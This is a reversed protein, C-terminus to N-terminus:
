LWVGVLDRVKRQIRFRTAYEMLRTINKRGDRVYAQIAKNVTEVDLKAAHRIVDCITRERDYVCVRVGNVESWTVGIRLCHPEIFHVKIPPYELKVKRRNIRKDVAIHWRDPTRDIYQYHYLASEMCLIADPLLRSIIEIDDMRGDEVWEYVGRKIRAISGAKVLAAIYSTHIGRSLMESTTAINGRSKFVQKVMEYKGM